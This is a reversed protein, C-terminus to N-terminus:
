CLSDIRLLRVCIIAAVSTQSTPKFIPIQKRPLLSGRLLCLNHLRWFALQNANLKQGANTYIKSHIQLATM